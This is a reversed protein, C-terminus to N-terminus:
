KVKSLISHAIKNGHPLKAEYRIGANSELSPGSRGQAHNASLEDDGAPMTRQVEWYFNSM